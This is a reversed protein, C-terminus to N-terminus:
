WSLGGHSLRATRSPSSTGETLKLVVAAIITVAGVGMVVDAVLGRTQVPDIRSTTCDPRCDHDLDRYDVYTWTGLAGGIALLGLGVGGVVWPVTSRKAVSAPAMATPASELALDVTRLHDAAAVVVTRESVVAGARRAKVIHTGPDVLVGRSRADPSLPTDDLSLEADLVDRGATDRLRAVLHPGDENISQLGRRCDERVVKPCEDRACVAFSSVADRLHGGERLDAAHEATSACADASLAPTKEGATSASAFFLFSLLSAASSLMVRM